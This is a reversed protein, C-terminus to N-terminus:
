EGNLVEIAVVNVFDAIYVGPGAVDETVIMGSEDKKTWTADSLFIERPDGFQSYFRTWGVLTAGDQFRLKVWYGRFTGLTDAWVDVSSSKNTMGLFQFLQFTTGWNNLCALAAAITVALVSGFLLNRGV